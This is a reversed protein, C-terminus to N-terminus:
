QDQVFARGVVRVAIRFRTATVQRDTRFCHGTVPERSEGVYHVFGTPGRGSPITIRFRMHLTPSQAQTKMILDILDCNATHGPFQSPRCRSWM